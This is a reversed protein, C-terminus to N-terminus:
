SREINLCTSLQCTLLIHMASIERSGAMLASTGFIRQHIIIIFIAKNTIIIEWGNSTVKSIYFM